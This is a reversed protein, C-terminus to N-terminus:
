NNKDDVLKEVPVKCTGAQQQWLNSSAGELAVTSRVFFREAFQATWPLGGRTRQILNFHRLTGLIAERAARREARKNECNVLGEELACAAKELVEGRSALPTPACNM